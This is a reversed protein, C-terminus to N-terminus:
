GLLRWVLLLGALVAAAAVWVVWGRLGGSLRGGLGGAEAVGATTLAYRRGDGPFPEIWGAGHWAAQVVRDQRAIDSGLFLGDFVPDLNVPLGPAVPRGSERLAEAMYGVVDRPTELM